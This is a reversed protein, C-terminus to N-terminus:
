DEYRSQIISIDDCSFTLYKLEGDDLLFHVEFRGDEFYLEHCELDCNSTLDGDEDIEAEDDKQEFSFSLKLVNPDFESGCFKCVSKGTRGDYILNAACHPCKITDALNESM